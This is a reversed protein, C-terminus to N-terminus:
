CLPPHHSPAACCSAKAAPNRALHGQGAAWGLFARVMQLSQYRSNPSYLRGRADTLWWLENQFGAVTKATVRAPAEISHQVAFAAFRQLWRHTAQLMTASWWPTPSRDCNAAFAENWTTM